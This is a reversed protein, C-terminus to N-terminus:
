SWVAVPEILWDIYGEVPSVAIQRISSRYSLFETQNKLYPNSYAPDSIDVTAAWDSAKLKLIATQKNQYATPPTPAPPKNAVAWATMANNAWEPLISIDENPNGDNFEIWGSNNDWQLAHVNIPTGEWALGSYCLNNEYVAGDIPIITLKM